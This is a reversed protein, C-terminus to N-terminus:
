ECKRALLVGDGNPLVAREFEKFGAASLWDKHEQETYCAGEDYTNLFVLDMGAEGLPSTRSDDLMHGLVYIAGGPQIVEGIHVLARSAQERSLVQILARLVAVDYSGPPPAQAVDAAIVEVRESAGAEEILRRAVPVVARLEAVTVALNPYAEALAMALAGSGGGVDLLRSYSSFDYEEALMKGAVCAIPRTARFISELDSESLVSFDYLDQPVGTRISEATKLAGSWNYFNLVPSTHPHEGVYNPSERVLFAAAEETNSFARDNVTLLGAAVLAYLLRELKSSELGMADALQEAVMPGDKLMSFVDLQMGALMAFSSYVTTAVQRIVRPEPAASREDMKGRIEQDSRSQIPRFTDPGDLM